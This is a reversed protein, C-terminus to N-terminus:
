LQLLKQTLGQYLATNESYERRLTRVEASRSNIEKELAGYQKALHPNGEMGKLKMGLTELDVAKEPILKELEEQRKTVLLCDSELM